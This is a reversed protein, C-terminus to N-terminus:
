CTVTPGSLVCGCVGSGGNEPRCPCGATRDQAFDYRQPQVGVADLQDLLQRVRRLIDQRSCAHSGLYQSGCTPCVGGNWLIGATTGTSSTVMAFEQRRFFSGLEARM